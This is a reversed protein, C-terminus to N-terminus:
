QARADTLCLELYEQKSIKGAALLQFLRVDVASPTIGEFRNIASFHQFMSARMAKEADAFVAARSEFEEIKQEMLTMLGIIDFLLGVAFAKRLEPPPNLSPTASM